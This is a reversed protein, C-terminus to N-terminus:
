KPWSRSSNLCLSLTITTIFMLPFTQGTQCQIKRGNWFCISSSKDNELFLLWLLWVIQNPCKVVDVIREGDGPIRVTILYPLGRSGSSTTELQQIWKSKQNIQCVPQRQENIRDTKRQKTRGCSIQTPVEVSKTSQHRNQVSTVKCASQFKLHSVPFVISPLSVERSIFNVCM